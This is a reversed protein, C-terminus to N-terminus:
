AVLSYVRQKFYTTQASIFADAQAKTLEKGEGMDKTLNIIYLGDMLGEQGTSYAFIGFRIVDGIALTTVGSGIGWNAGAEVNYIAGGSGDIQNNIRCRIYLSSGNLAKGFNCIYYVGAETVTYKGYTRCYNYNSVLRQSKLGYKKDDSLNYQGSAGGGDWLIGDALGDSNSDTECDGYQYFLNNLVPFGAAALLIKNRETM